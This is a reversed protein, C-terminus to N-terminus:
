VKEVEGKAWKKFGDFKTSIEMAVDDDGFEPLTFSNVWKTLREKRPAKAAKEAEERERREADEKAKQAAIEADKKAQLEAQLKANEAAQKEAAKNAAEKEKQEKAIRKKEAKDRKEQEAKAKKEAAEAEKKLRENEKRIAEQEAEHATRKKIAGNVLAMFDKESMEGFSLNEYDDIFEVLRITKNKRETNLKEIKELRVREEEAAKEAAIRSEM